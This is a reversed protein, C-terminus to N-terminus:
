ARRNTPLCCPVGHTKWQIAPTVDETVRAKEGEPIFTCSPRGPFGIIATVVPAFSCSAMRGQPSLSTVSLCSFCTRWAEGESQKWPLSGQRWGPIDSSWRATEEWLKAEPTGPCDSLLKWSHGGGRVATWLNPRQHQDGSNDAGRGGVSSGYSPCCWCASPTRHPSQQLKLQFWSLQLQVLVPSHCHSPSLKNVGGPGWSRPPLVVGLGFTAWSRTADGSSLMKEAWLPQPPLHVATWGPKLKRSISHPHGLRGTM